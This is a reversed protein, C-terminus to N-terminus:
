PLHPALAAAGMAKMLAFLKQEMEYALVGNHELRNDIEGRDSNLDYLEPQGSDMTYIFKWGSHTRLSRKFARNLYDTESFADLALSEGELLPLLSTGTMQAAIKEAAGLDLLDLLTPMIDVTRVQDHVTVGSRGPIRFLLPVRILEDYLSYGHDFRGHEHFENGSPSSVVVITNKALPMRGLQELFDGLRRDAQYIKGDYWGRWFEVDAEGMALSGLALSDDRLRWYEEAGGAYPGSYDPDIFRKELPQPPRYRGHVDFGHVFVFFKETQHEGIWDLSMPMVLDFGAFDTADYYTDFGRGYGFVSGAGAGGTFGATAYGAAQLVEAFTVVSPSLDTLNAVVPGAETNGSYANTVRHQSPYMSTFWSMLSPLTWSSASIANRFLVAGKAFEDLHPTTKRPYGYASVHNAGLPDFAIWVLNYNTTDAPDGQGEVEAQDLLVEGDRFEFSRAMDLVEGEDFEERPVFVDVRVLTRRKGSYAFWMAGRHAILEEVCPGYTFRQTSNLLYVPVRNAATEVQVLQPKFEDPCALTQTIMGPYPSPISGYLAITVDSQGAAYEAARQPDVGEMVEMKLTKRAAHAVISRFTHGVGKRVNNKEVRYTTMGNLYVGVGGLVEGLDAPPTGQGGSFAPAGLTSFLLVLTSAIMKRM